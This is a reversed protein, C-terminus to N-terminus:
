RKKTKNTKNIKKRRNKTQKPYMNKYETDYRNEIIKIHIKKCPKSPKVYVGLPFM